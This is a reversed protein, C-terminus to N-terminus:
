RVLGKRNILGHSLPVLGVGSYFIGQRWRCKGYFSYPEEYRWGAIALADDDAMPRIFFQM